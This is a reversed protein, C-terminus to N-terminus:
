AIVVQYNGDRTARLYVTEADWPKINIPDGLSPTGGDPHGVATGIRGDANRYYAIMAPVRGLSHEVRVDEGSRLFVNFAEGDVLQAIAMIPNDEGGGRYRGLRDSIQRIADNLTRSQGNRLSEDTISPPTNFAPPRTV